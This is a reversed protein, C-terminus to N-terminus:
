AWISVNRFYGCVHIHMSVISTTIYVKVTIDRTSYHVPVDIIGPPLILLLVHVAMKVLVLHKVFIVLVCDMAPVALHKMKEVHM